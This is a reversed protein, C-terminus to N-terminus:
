GVNGCGQWHRGIREWGEKTFLDDETLPGSTHKDPDMTPLIIVSARETGGSPQESVQIVYDVSFPRCSGTDNWTEHSYM